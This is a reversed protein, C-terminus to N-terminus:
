GKLLRSKANVVLRTRGKCKRVEYVKKQQENSVVCKTLHFKASTVIRHVAKEKKFFIKDKKIEKLSLYLFIFM